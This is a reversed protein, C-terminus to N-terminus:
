RGRGVREGGKRTKKRVTIIGHRATNNGGNSGRALTTYQLLLVKDIQLKRELLAGNLYSCYIISTQRSTPQCTILGNVREPQWFQWIFIVFM